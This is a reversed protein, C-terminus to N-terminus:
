ALTICFFFGRTGDVDSARPPIVTRSATRVSSVGNLRGGEGQQFVGHCHHACGATLRVGFFCSSGNAHLRRRLVVGGADAAARM